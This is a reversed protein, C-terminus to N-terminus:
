RKDRRKDGGAKELKDQLLALGNWVEHALCYLGSEDDLDKLLGDIAHRAKKNQYSRQFGDVKRWGGLEGHKQCGNATVRAVETLALHFDSLMDALPVKVGRSENIIREREILVGSNIAEKFGRCISCNCELTHECMSNEGFKADMM